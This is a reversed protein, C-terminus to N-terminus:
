AKGSVCHQWQEFLEADVAGIASRATLDAVFLQEGTLTGAFGGAEQFILEGAAYDWLNQKGHLYVHARGAALWCWDLAVSGFNRQSAYPREAALRGALAKDLRKFDVVALTKSLPLGVPQLVLPEGNLAAGQGAVASFCEDRIPDYVLGLRRKGDEILALSIAFYPLGATFNSTGDVPDLVWVPDAGDSLAERAQEEPMEEGLFAIEPYAEALAAQIAEQVQRDVATVWSGDAKEERKVQKMGPLLIEASVSRLLSQLKEIM